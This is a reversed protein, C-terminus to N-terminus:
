ERFLEIFKEAPKSLYRDKLWIVASESQIMCNELGIMRINDLPFMSVSSVPLLTAGLGASVLSILINPDACEALINPEIGLRRFENVIIEFTGSISTRHLLLLPMRDLREMRVSAERIDWHDPILLAFPEGPLKVMAFENEDVPLRVIAVDIERNLLLRSLSSSDGDKIKFSVDPYNQHFETIKPPLKSLCSLVTGISLVGRIGDGTEKVERVIEDLQRLLLEGKHFLIKGAETLEISRGKREVLVTDCEDEMQKLLQSLPPQAMNLKQAARTIQGEKAITVFYRIQRVDM